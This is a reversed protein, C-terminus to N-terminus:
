APEPPEPRREEQREEDDRISEPLGAEDAEAGLVEPFAFEEDADFGAPVGPVDGVVVAEAAVVEPEAEDAAAAETEKEQPAGVASEQFM